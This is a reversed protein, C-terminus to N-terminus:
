GAGYVPYIKQYYIILNKSLFSCYIIKDNFFYILQYKKIIILFFHSVLYEPEPKWESFVYLEHLISNNEAM